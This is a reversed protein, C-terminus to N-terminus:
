VIRAGKQIYPSLLVNAYDTIYVDQSKINSNYSFSDNGFSFSTIGNKINIAHPNDAGVSLLNFAVDSCATKLDNTINNPINILPICKIRRTAEELLRNKEIESLKFWNDSNPKTLIYEDAECITCFAM